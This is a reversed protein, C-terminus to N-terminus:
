KILTVNGVYYHNQDKLDKALIKYVYVGEQIIENNSKGDWPKEIDNTYHIKEGWRNFIEMEFSNLTVGQPAFFDNIGDNDPTFANPIYISFVPEKVKILGPAFFSSTCGNSDTVTLTINYNICLNTKQM